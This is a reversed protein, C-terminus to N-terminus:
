GNPTYGRQRLIAEARAYDMGYQEAYQQIKPDAGAGSPAQTAVSKAPPQAAAPASSQTAGGGKRTDANIAQVDDATPIKGKFGRLTGNEEYYKIAQLKANAMNRLSTALRQIRVRNEAESQRPNFSRNLLMEGEKETFQAGLLPRLSRQIVEHVQDQLAAGEPSVVDRVAKPLLGVLPGSAGDTKTLKDAADDLQDLQRLPDAFGGAAVYESYEKAFWQDVKSEAPTLQKRLSEDERALKDKDREMQWKQFESMEGPAKAPGKVYPAGVQVLRNTNPDFVEQVGMEMKTQTDFYTREKPAPLKLAADKKPFKLYLTEDGSEGVRKVMRGGDTPEASLEGGKALLEREESPTIYGQNSKEAAEEAANMQGLKRYDSYIGFASQAIQLGKLLSDLPDKKVPMNVSAM